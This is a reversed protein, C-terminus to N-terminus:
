GAPRYAPANQEFSYLFPPAVGCLRVYVYLQGRHHLLEDNMVHFAVFGPFTKNWPTPVMAGLQADGIAAVAADAKAWCEEAYAILDAQKTIGAAIGKEADEDATIEGKEVGQAIDRIVTTSVHTALEVATRMGPVLQSTLRDEPIAELLRLYIGYKQRIQDWMQTLIEKNM